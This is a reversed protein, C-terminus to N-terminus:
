LNKEIAKKQSESLVVPITKFEMQPFISTDLVATPKKAIYMAVSDKIIPEMQKMIGNLAQQQLNGFILSSEIQHASKLINNITNIPLPNNAFTNILLFYEMISVTIPTATAGVITSNKLMNSSRNNLLEFLFKLNPRWNEPMREYKPKLTKDDISDVLYHVEDMIILKDRLNSIKEYKKYKGSTLNGLETYNLPYIYQRMFKMYSSVHDENTVDTWGHEKAIEKMDGPCEMGQKIFNTFLEHTAGVFIVSYKKKEKINKRIHHNVIGIMTCTKGTGTSALILLRKLPSYPSGLITQVTQYKFLKLQSKDLKCLSGKSPFDGSLILNFQKIKKEVYNHIDMGTKYEDWFVQDLSQKEFTVKKTSDLKNPLSTPQFKSKKASTNLNPVSKAMGKFKPSKKPPISFSITKDKLITPLSKPSFKPSQKNTPVSRAMGKFKSSKPSKPSKPNKKPQITFSISKDKLTIPLSKPSFRKSSEPSKNPLSKPSKIFSTSKISKSSM